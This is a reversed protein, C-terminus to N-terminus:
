VHNQEGLWKLQQGFTLGEMPVTCHSLEPALYERYPSGALIVFEDERFNCCDRLSALVNKAWAKRGQVGISKLTKEYPSIVEELELLGHLASLIFIQKPELSHAYSMMKKFLASTYM